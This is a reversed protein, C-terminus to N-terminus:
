LNLSVYDVPLSISGMKSSSSFTRFPSALQQTRATLQSSFTPAKRITTAFLRRSM